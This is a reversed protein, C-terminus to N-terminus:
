STASVVSRSVSQSDAVKVDGGGDDDDLHLSNIHATFAISRSNIAAANLPREATLGGVTRATGAPGTSTRTDRAERSRNTHTHRRTQPRLARESARQCSKPKDVSQM